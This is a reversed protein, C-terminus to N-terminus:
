GRQADGGRDAEHDVRQDLRVRDKRQDLAVGLDVVALHELHEVHADAEAVHDRVGVGLRGKRDELPVAAHRLADAVRDGVRLLRHPNGRAPQRGACATKSLRRRRAAPPTTEATRTGPLRRRLRLSSGPGLLFNLRSAGRLIASRSNERQTGPRTGSAESAASARSVGRRPM